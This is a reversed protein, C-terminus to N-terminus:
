GHKAGKTRLMAAAIARGIAEAESLDMERLRVEGILVHIDEAMAISIVKAHEPQRYGGQIRRMCGALEIDLEARRAQHTAAVRLLPMDRRTPGVDEYPTTLRAVDSDKASAMYESVQSLSWGEAILIRAAVLRVLHKPGYVAKRGRREPRPVIARRVYDRVLRVNLEHGSRGLESLMEEAAEALDTADAVLDKRWAPTTWRSDKTM